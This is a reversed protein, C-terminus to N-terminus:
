RPDTRWQKIVEDNSGAREMAADLIPNSARALELEQYLRKKAAFRLSDGSKELLALDPQDPTLVLIATAINRAAAEQKANCTLVREGSQSVAAKTLSFEDLEDLIQLKIAPSDSLVDLADGHYDFELLNCYPPPVSQIVQHLSWRLPRGVQPVPIRASKIGDHLMQHVTNAFKRARIELGHQKIEKLDRKNRLFTAADEGRALMEDLEDEKVLGPALDTQGLIFELVRADTPQGVSTKTSRAALLLHLTLQHLPSLMAVLDLTTLLELKLAALNQACTPDDRALDGIRKMCGAMGSLLIVRDSGVSERDEIVPDSLGAWERRRSVNQSQLHRIGRYLLWAWLNGDPVVALFARDQQERSVRLSRGTGDGLARRLRGLFKLHAVSVADEADQVSRTRRRLSSTLALLIEDTLLGEGLCIDSEM